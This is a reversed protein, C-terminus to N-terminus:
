HVRTKRRKGKGEIRTGRGHIEDIRDLIEKERTDFEAETIRGTELMMYLESLEATAAEGENAIEEQAANYM